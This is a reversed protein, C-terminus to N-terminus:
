PLGPRSRQFVEESYFFLEIEPVESLFSAHLESLYANVVDNSATFELSVRHLRQAEDFTKRLLLPDAEYRVQVSPESAAYAAIMPILKETRANFRQRYGDTNAAITASSSTSLRSLVYSATELTVLASNYLYFHINAPGSSFTQVQESVLPLLRKEARRRVSDVDKLLAEVSPKYSVFAPDVLMGAIDSDAKHFQQENRHFIQTATLRSERGSKPTPDSPPSEQGPKPTQNSTTSQNRVEDAPGCGTEILFFMLAVTPLITSKLGLYYRRHM